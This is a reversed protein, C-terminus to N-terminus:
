IVEDYPDEEEGKNELKEYLKDIIATQKASFLTAEGFQAVRLYNSRIFSEEWENLDGEGAQEYIFTVKEHTPTDMYGDKTLQFEM